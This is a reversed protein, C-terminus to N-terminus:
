VLGAERFSFYGPSGAGPVGIIVHDILKIKFLACAEATTRTIARDSQSPTPDGSPHNHVLVVGYANHIIAPRLIERPDAIAENVSGLSVEAMRMMRLRTDLLVVRLSEQRRSQLEPAMLQYIAEPMDLKERRLQERTARRALEFVAALTTAKASKIGSFLRLEGLDMRSLEQLSGAERLLRAALALVNEGERGTRLLIALLEADSLAGPGDREMRERPLQSDDMDQIKPM